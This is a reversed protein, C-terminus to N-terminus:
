EIEGVARLIEEVNRASEHLFELAEAAPMVGMPSGLREMDALFDPNTMINMFGEDLRDIVEQPTGVKVAIGRDTSMIVEYGQERFTPVNPMFEHREPSAIALVKIQDGLRYMDSLNGFNLDIHGGLIAAQADAAGPFPLNTIEIDAEIQLQLIALHHGVWLGATGATLALPNERAYDVVDQLSNFQSDPLVGLVVPDFSWHGVPIFEEWSFLTPELLTQSIIHPLNYVTLNYGDSPGQSWQNWGTIGGAGAVNIVVMPQGFEDNFYTTFPRAQVDTAAGASFAVLLQVPRTPFEGSATGGQGGQTGQQQGGQNGCAVVLAAALLLVLVIILVKSSKSKLMFGVEKFKKSQGCLM